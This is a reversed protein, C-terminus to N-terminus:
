QIWSMNKQLRVPNIDRQMLYSRTNEIHSPINKRNEKLKKFETEQHTIEELFSSKTLLFVEMKLKDLDEELMSAALRDKPRTCGVGMGAPGDEKNRQSKNKLEAENEPSKKLPVV